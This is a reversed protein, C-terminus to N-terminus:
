GGGFMLNVLVLSLQPFAIVLFAFIVMTAIFPMVGKFINGMPVDKAVGALAYVIMGVPPTLGGILMMVVLAVGFHVPDVGFDLAIPYMIPTVLLLLPLADIVMGLIFMMIVTLVWFLVKSDGFSTMVTRLGDPIGTSIVFQQLVMSGALMFGVMGLTGSTDKMTQMIAGKNIRKRLIGLILVTIVGFAGAETPTFIGLYIGGIIVVFVIILFIMGPSEKLAEARSVKESQPALNPNRTCLITICVMYMLVLLIGPIIGAIFLKGISVQASSGYVIFLLSPPILCSLVAGGAISGLVFSDDYNHKRTEPLSMSCYTVAAGITDGSCAGFAANGIIIAHALGGKKHGIWAKVGMYFEEALGTNKALFGMLLFMPVTSWSYNNLSAFPISACVKLTGPWGIYLGLGLMGAFGMAMAVPVKALMLILMFVLGLIGLVLRSGAPFSRSFPQVYIIVLSIIVSLAIVAGVVKMGFIDKLNRILVYAITIALIATGIAVVLYIPWKVLELIATKENMVTPTYKFTEVASVITFILSFVGAVLSLVDQAKKPLNDAVLGVVVHEEVAMTYPATLFIAAIVGLCTIDVLGVIPKSFLYRGVAHVVTLVVLVFIIALAIYSLFKTFSFWKSNHEKM